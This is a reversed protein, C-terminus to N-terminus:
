KALEKFMDLHEDILDEAIEEIQKDQMLYFGDKKRKIQFPTVQEMPSQKEYDTYLLM